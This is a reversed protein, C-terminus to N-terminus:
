HGSAPMDLPTQVENSPLSKLASIGPLVEVTSHSQESTNQKELQLQPSTESQEQQVKRLDLKFSIPAKKM